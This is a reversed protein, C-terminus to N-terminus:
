RRQRSRRAAACRSSSSLRRHFPLLHVSFDTRGTGALDLLARSHPKDHTETDHHM